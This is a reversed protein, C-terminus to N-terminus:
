KSLNYHLWSLLKSYHAILKSKAEEDVIDIDENFSSNNDDIKEANLEIEETPSVVTSTKYVNKMDGQRENNVLTTSTQTDYEM